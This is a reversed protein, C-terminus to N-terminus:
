RVHIFDKISVARMMYGVNRVTKIYLPNRNNPEIKQRIRSVFVDIIREDMERDQTNWKALLQSRTFAKDQNTMFVLLLEYEKRTVEVWESDKYLAYQSPDLTLNGNQIVVSAFTSKDVKLQKTYITGRRITSKMRAVLEKTRVPKVMYDDAGLELGVVAELENQQETLLIFPVWNNDANRLNRCLEIGTTDDLEMSAVIGDPQLHKLVRLAESSKNVSWVDFGQKEFGAQITNRIDQNPEVILISSTSSTTTNM